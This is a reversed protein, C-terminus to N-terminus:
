ASEGAEQQHAAPQQHCEPCSAEMGNGGCCPNGGIVVRGQWTPDPLVTVPGHLQELEAVTYYSPNPSSPHCYGRSRYEWVTGHDCRVRQPPRNTTAPQKPETSM